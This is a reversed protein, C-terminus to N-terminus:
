PTGWLYIRELMSDVDSGDHAYGSIHWWGGGLWYAKAGSVLLQEDRHSTTIRVNSAAVHQVARKECRVNASQTSLRYLNM